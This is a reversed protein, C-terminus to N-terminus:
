KGMKGDDKDNRSMGLNLPTFIFPGSNTSEGYRKLKVPELHPRMRILKFSRYVHSLTWPKLNQVNLGANFDFLVAKQLLQFRNWKNILLCLLCWICSSLLMQFNKKLLYILARSLSDSVECITYHYTTRATPDHWQGPCTISLEWWRDTHNVAGFDSKHGEEGDSDHISTSLPDYVYYTQLLALGFIWNLFIQRWCM